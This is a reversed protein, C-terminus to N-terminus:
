RLRCIPRGRIIPPARPSAKLSKAKKTLRPYRSAAWLFQALSKDKYDWSGKINERPLRVERFLHDQARHRWIEEISASTYPTRSHGPLRCYRLLEHPIKKIPGEYFEWAWSHPEMTTSTSPPPQSETIATIGPPQQSTRACQELTEPSSQPEM